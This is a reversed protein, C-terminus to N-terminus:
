MTTTVLTSRFEPPNTVRTFMHSGIYPMIEISASRKM